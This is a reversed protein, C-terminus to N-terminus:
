SNEETDQSSTQPWVGRYYQQFRDELAKLAHDHEDEHAACWGLDVVFIRVYNTPEYGRPVLQVARLDESRVTFETGSTDKFTVSPM